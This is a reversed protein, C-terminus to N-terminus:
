LGIIRTLFADSVSESVEIVIDRKRIVVPVQNTCVDAEAIVSPKLEIFGEHKEPQQSSVLSLAADDRLIKQWRYFSKSNINHIRMWEEKGMGSQNCETVINKWYDYRMAHTVRDM